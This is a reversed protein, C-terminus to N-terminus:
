DAHEKIIEKLKNYDQEDYLKLNGHNDRDHRGLDITLDIDIVNSFDDLHRNDKMSRFQKGRKTNTYLHVGWNAKKGVILLDINEITDLTENYIVDIGKSKIYYAFMIDRILSPYCRTARNELASVYAQSSYKQFFLENDGKYQSIFEDVTPFTGNMKVFNLFSSNFMPVRVIHEIEYEEQTCQSDNIRPAPVYHMVDLKKIMDTYSLNLTDLLNPYDERKFEKIM